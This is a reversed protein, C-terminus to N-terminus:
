RDHEFCRNVEPDQCSSCHMVDRYSVGQKYGYEWSSKLMPYSDLYSPEKYTDHSSAHHYGDCEAIVGAELIEANSGEVDDFVRCVVAQLMHGYIEVISVLM